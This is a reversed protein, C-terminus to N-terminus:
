AGSLIPAQLRHRPPAEDFAALRNGVMEAHIQARRLSPPNGQQMHELARLKCLAVRLRM